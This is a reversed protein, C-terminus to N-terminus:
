DKLILGKFIHLSYSKLYWHSETGNRIFTMAHITVTCKIYDALHCPKPVMNPYHMETYNIDLHNHLISGHVAINDINIHIFTVEELCIPLAYAM